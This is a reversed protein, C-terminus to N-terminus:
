AVEVVVVVEDEVHMLFNVFNMLFIKIVAVVIVLM